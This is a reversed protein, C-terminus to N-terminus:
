NNELYCGFKNVDCSTNFFIACELQCCAVERITSLRRLKASNDYLLRSEALLQLFTQVIMQLMTFLKSKSM